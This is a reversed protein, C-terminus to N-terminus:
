KQAFLTKNKEIAEAFLRRSRDPDALVMEKAKAIADDKTIAKCVYWGSSVETVTWWDSHDGEVSDHVFFEFGELIDVLFGEVEKSYYEESDRKKCRITITKM